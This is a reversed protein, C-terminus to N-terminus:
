KGYVDTGNEYPHGADITYRVQKCDKRAYKTANKEIWAWCEPETVFLREYVDFYGCSGGTSQSCLLAVWFYQTIWNPPGNLLALM